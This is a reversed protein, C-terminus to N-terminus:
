SDDDRSLDRYNAAVQWAYLEWSKAFRRRYKITRFKEEDGGAMMMMLVNGREEPPCVDLPGKREKGSDDGKFCEWAQFGAITERDSDWAHVFDAAV